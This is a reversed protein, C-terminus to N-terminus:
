VRSEVQVVVVSVMETSHNKAISKSVVVGWHRLPIFRSQLQSQVVTLRESLHSLAGYCMKPFKLSVILFILFLYGQLPCENRINRGADDCSNNDLCM